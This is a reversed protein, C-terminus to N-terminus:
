KNAVGSQSIARGSDDIWSFNGANSLLACDHIASVEAQPLEANTLTFLRNAFSVADGTSTRGVNFHTQDFKLISPDSALSTDRAFLDIVDKGKGLLKPTRVIESIVGAVDVIPTKAKEYFVSMSYSRDTQGDVAFFVLNFLLRNNAIDTEPLEGFSLRSLYSLLKIRIENRLGNWYETSPNFEHRSVYNQTVDFIDFAMKGTKDNLFGTTHTAVFLAKDNVKHIKVYNDRFTDTTENYLRKDSCVVLGQQVPVAVVLTGGLKSVRNSQAAAVSAVAMLFIAITISRHHLYTVM